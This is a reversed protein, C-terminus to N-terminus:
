DLKMSEGKLSEARKIKIKQYVPSRATSQDQAAPVSLLRHQHARCLPHLHPSSVANNQTRM